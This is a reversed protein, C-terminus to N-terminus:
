SANYPDPSAFEIIVRQTGNTEVQEKALGLHKALQALANLKDALKWKRVDGIKVREDGRGDYEEFVDLGAIAARADPDIDTISLPNGDADFLNAVDFFAIRALEALVRESSIELRDSAKQLAEGRRREIEKRIRGDNRGMTRSINAKLGILHMDPSVDYAQRYCKLFTPFKGDKGRTCCLEIFRLQRPSFESKEAAM